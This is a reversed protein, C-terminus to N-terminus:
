SGIGVMTTLSPSSSCSSCSVKSSLRSEPGTRLVNVPFSLHLSTLGSSHVKMNGNHLCREKRKQRNMQNMQNPRINLRRICLAYIREKSYRMLTSKQQCQKHLELIGYILANCWRKDVWRWWGCLMGYRTFYDMCDPVIVREPLDTNLELDMKYLMISVPRKAWIGFM